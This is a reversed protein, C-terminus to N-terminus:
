SKRAVMATIWIPAYPSTCGKSAPFDRFAGIKEGIAIARTRHEPFNIGIEALCYNMTWQVDTPADGMEGEIRDLLASIDLGDPNKIVKETTLSWGMRATMDHNSNMWRERQAEKQPHLKVVNTSLWDAIHFYSVSGVLRDLDEVSLQKPKMLLTALLMADLNGSAWLEEALEPSAKIQKAVDRLDTSKVGFQNDGAGRKANHKYIMDNRLGSLKAMVEDYTM